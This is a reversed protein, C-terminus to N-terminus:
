EDPGFVYLTGGTSLTIYETTDTGIRVVDGRRRRDMGDGWIRRLEPLRKVLRGQGDYFAQARASTNTWVLRHGAAGWTVPTAGQGVYDPQITWLREGRGSFLTLIGFNGWRTAVLVETGPLDPRVEGVTRGQAHGVRHVARTEGTLADVAYMGASGAILLATPDEDVNGAIDGLVVADYHKAGKINLVEDVRDHEWLVTGDSDYMVGGALLEDRGDGDIDHFALSENHGYHADGQTRKWLLNLYCDYAWLNLGGNEFDERWERLVIDTPEDSSLAGSTPSLDYMNLDPAAPPLEARAVITGTRGEVVVLENQGSHGSRVERTGTLGYILRGNPGCARSFACRGIREPIEWLLEGDSDRARLQRGEVLIDFRGPEVFDKFVPSGGLDSLNYTRIVKADPIDVGRVEVEAKAFTLRRADGDRQAETQMIEFLRVTAKNMVRLGVKGSPFTTDIIRFLVGLEPIECRIADGDLQVRLTVYDTSEDIPQEALVCWDDDSRRYLVARRKGEVGFQYYARSTQVRFVIGALADSIDAIDASPTAVTALQKMEAVLTGDRLDLDRGLIAREWGTDGTFALVAQGSEYACAMGAGVKFNGWPSLPAEWVDFLPREADPVPEMPRFVPGEPVGGLDLRAVITAPSGPRHMTSEEVNSRRMDPLQAGVQFGAVLLAAVGLVVNNRM